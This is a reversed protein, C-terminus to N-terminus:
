CVYIKESPAPSRETVLASKGFVRCSSEADRNGSQIALADGGLEEVHREVRGFFPLITDAKRFQEQDLSSTRQVFYKAAVV